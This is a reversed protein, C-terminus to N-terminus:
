ERPGHDGNSTCPEDAPAVVRTEASRDRGAMSEGGAEDTSKARQQVPATTTLLQDAVALILAVVAVAAMLLRVTFRVRPLKM